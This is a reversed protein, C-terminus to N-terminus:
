EGSEGLKPIVSRRLREMNENPNRSVDSFILYNCGAEILREAPEILDAPQEVLHHHEIIADDPAQSGMAQIQHPDMEDRAADILGMAAPGNKMLKLMDKMKGIGYEIYGMRCAKAPDRGTREMSRRFTEFIDKVTSPDSVTTMIHDGLEGAIKAAKAGRASVYVEVSGAPRTYLYLKKAAFYKGEWDFYETATWFKRMLQLAERLREGREKWDPWRGLFREESMAQGTGVGLVFRGPFMNDLTAAM